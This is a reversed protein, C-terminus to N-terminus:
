KNGINKIIESLKVLTDTRQLVVKPDYCPSEGTVGLRLTQELLTFIQDALAAELLGLSKKATEDSDVPVSALLTAIVGPLWHTLNSVLESRMANRAEITKLRRVTPALLDTAFTLSQAFDRESAHRQQTESIIARVKESLTVAGPPNYGALFAAEDSSLRVSLPVSKGSM